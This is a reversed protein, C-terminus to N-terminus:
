KATPRGTATTVRMDEAFLFYAFAATFVLYTALSGWVVANTPQTEVVYINYLTALGVLLWGSFITSDIARRGDADKVRLGMIALVSFALTVGGFTRALANSVDTAVVGYQEAMMAPILLLSLGFAATAIASAWLFGNRTNSMIRQVLRGLIPM